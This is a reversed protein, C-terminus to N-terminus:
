LLVRQLSGGLSFWRSLSKSCYSALQTLAPLHSDELSSPVVKARAQLFTFMAQERSRECKKETSVLELFV